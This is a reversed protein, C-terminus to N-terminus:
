CRSTGSARTRSTSARRRPRTGPPPAHVGEVELVVLAQGLLAPEHGDVALHGAVEERRYGREQGEGGARRPREQQLAHHPSLADRAVREEAAIGDQGQFGAPALDPLLPHLPRPAHLPVEERRQPLAEAPGRHLDPPQRPEGAPGHAVEGVVRDPQELPDGVAMRGRGMRDGREREVARQDREVVDQLPHDQDRVDLRPAAGGPLGPLVDEVRHFLVQPPRRRGNARGASERGGPRFAEAVTRRVAVRHGPGLLVDGGAVDELDHQGAPLGHGTRCSGNVTYRASRM